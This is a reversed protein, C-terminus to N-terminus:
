TKTTDSYDKVAEVVDKVFSERVRKNSFVKNIERSIGQPVVQNNTKKNNKFISVGRSSNLPIKITYKDKGKKTIKHLHIDDASNDWRASYKTKHPDIFVEQGKILPSVKM